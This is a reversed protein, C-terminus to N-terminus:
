KLANLLWEVKAESESVKQNVVFRQAHRKYSDFAMAFVDHAMGEEALRNQGDVMGELMVPLPALAALLIQLDGAEVVGPVVVDFPLYSFPSTLVSSFSLLGGSAYICKVDDEFLALLLSLFGGLPESQKPIEDIGLPVALDVDRPNSAAFSDGYVAIRQPDLGPRQKLYAVVTRLDRLRSGLLPQGLMLETASIATSRSSRGRGGALATEGTGRLDMLCVAAGGALLEALEESRKSLFDGKGGQAVCLVMPQASDGLSTGLTVLPVLIGPEIELAAKELWLGSAFDQRQPGVALRVDGPPDIEGLLARWHERLQEHQERTEMVRLRRRTEMERGRGIDQAMEHIKLPQLKRKLEETLCLLEEKQRRASFEKEPSGEIQFWSRLASHIRKRHFTGINNCHSADPPRQRLLGFGHTYDLHGPAGYFEGYVKQLRKWVPDRDRDWGFEHAYILHRPAIGAVIVWPLFGDRASRWLNRTSEWSGSTAYNFSTEADDPLPYPSEPEPGGFNFPVAAAIRQDLASAVAAPDGGGAVSGMLIIKDPDIGDRSLLLDVARRLDHIMWGMLSDGILYLQIGLNYRFHYDERGVRFEGEYDNESKFPHDNREGHGVHDMVLVMCGLRAWTMGMDQLEGQTKPNHHSHSLIIGPMSSRIPDPVYLNATVWFRPRSEFVLNEIRFGDGPLTNSVHVTPTGPTEPLDGLSDRLAQLRVRVFDEWQNQNHIARWEESSRQNAQAIRRRSLDALMDGLENPSGKLLVQSDIQALEEIFTTQAAASGSTLFLTLTFVVSSTLTRLM